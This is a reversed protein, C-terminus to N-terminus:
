WCCNGRTTKWSTGCPSGTSARRSWPLTHTVGAAALWDWLALLGETLSEYRAIKEQVQGTRLDTQRVCAMVFRKHVDLGAVCPLLTEMPCRGLFPVFGQLIGPFLGIQGAREGM